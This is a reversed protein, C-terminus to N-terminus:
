KRTENSCSSGAVCGECGCERLVHVLDNLARFTGSGGVRLCMCPARIKNKINLQRGGKMSPSNVPLVDVANISRVNLLEITLCDKKNGSM